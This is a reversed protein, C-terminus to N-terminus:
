EFAFAQNTQKGATMVWVMSAVQDESMSVGSMGDLVNCGTNVILTLIKALKKWIDGALCRDGALCGCLSGPVAM